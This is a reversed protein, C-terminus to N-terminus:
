NATGRRPKEPGELPREPNDARQSAIGCSTATGNRTAAHAKALAEDAPGVCDAAKPDSQLEHEQNLKRAPGSPDGRSIKWSALRLVNHTMGSPM